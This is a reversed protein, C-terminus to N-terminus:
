SNNEKDFEERNPSRKDMQNNPTSVVPTQQVKELQGLQKSGDRQQAWQTLNEVPNLIPYVYQTRVRVNKRRLNEFSAPYITGPTEMEDTLKLPTPYPSHKSGLPQIQTDNQSPSIDLLASAMGPEVKPDHKVSGLCVDMTGPVQIQNGEQSSSIDLVASDVESETETDLKIIGFCVSDDTGHPQIQSDDQSPSTDLGDSLLQLHFM